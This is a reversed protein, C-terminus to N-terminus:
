GAKGVSALCVNALGLSSGIIDVNGHIIRGSLETSNLDIRRIKIANTIFGPVISPMHHTNRIVTFPIHCPLSLFCIVTKPLASDTFRTGIYFPSTLNGGTVDSCNPGQFGLRCICTVTQLKSSYCAADNRCKNSSKCM